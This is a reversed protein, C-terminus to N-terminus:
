GDAGTSQRPYTLSDVFNSFRLSMELCQTQAKKRPFLTSQYTALAQHRYSSYVSTTRESWPRQRHPWPQMSLLLVCRTKVSTGKWKKSVCTESDLWCEFANMQAEYIQCSRRFCSWCLLCGMVHSSLLIGWSRGFSPDRGDSYMSSSWCCGLVWVLCAQMREIEMAEWADYGLSSWCLRTRKRIYCLWEKGGM